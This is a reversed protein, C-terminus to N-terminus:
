FKAMVQFRIGTKHPVSIYDAGSSIHDQHFFTTRGIKLWFHFATHLQYHLLLYLRQGKNYYPPVSFAYLVDNEYAYIRSNWGDTDFLAYRMHITLPHSSFHLAVDQLMLFGQENDTGKQYYLYEIRSQLTLLSTPSYHLVYRIDRISKTIVPIHYIDPSILNEQRSSYRFRFNMNLNTAASVDFQILFAKGNSPANIRFRLWPFRYYDAYASFSIAASLLMKVGVYIGEENRAQESEMFPSAYIVEYDPSFYRYALAFSFRDDPYFNFGATGALAKGPNAALEGFFSFRNIVWSFNVSANSFRKGRFDYLRYFQSDPELPLSLRTQYYTAGVQWNKGSYNLHGGAALLTVNNKHLLECLTRHLGSEPLASIEEQQSGPSVFLTGDIKHQSYFLTLALNKKKLTIAAGRLFRNENSSTNPKIGNGYYKIQTTEASKGFTLGSWLALGQGFELHYDGIIAKQVIGWHSIFIFASSFDPFRPQHNDLRNKISDSLRHVAFVEGADKDLTIGIRVFNSSRFAYRLYLSQPGGIYDTGPYRIASDPSLRFGTSKEFTQGYRLIIHQNSFRFVNKWHFSTEKEPKGTKIFPAIQRITTRNFGSIYRLEYLSYIWGYQHIYNELASFQMENLLHLEVLKGAERSNINIPHTAYYVFADTLDSYDAPYKTQRSLDELKSTIFDPNYRLTDHQQAILRHPFGFISIAVWLFCYKLFQWM